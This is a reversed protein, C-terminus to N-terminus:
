IVDYLVLIAAFSHKRSEEVSRSFTTASALFMPYTGLDRLDDRAFIEKKILPIVSVTVAVIRAPIIQLPAADFVLKIKEIGSSIVAGTDFPTAINLM